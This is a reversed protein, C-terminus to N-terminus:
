PTKSKVHTYIDFNLKIYNGFKWMPRKLNGNSNFVLSAPFFVFLNRELVKNIKGTISTVILLNFLM